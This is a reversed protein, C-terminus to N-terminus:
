QKPFGRGGTIAEGGTHAFIGAAGVSRLGSQSCWRSRLGERASMLRWVGLGQQGRRGVAIGAAQALAHGAAGAQSRCTV